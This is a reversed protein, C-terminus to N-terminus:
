YQPIVQEQLNDQGQCRTQGRCKGKNGHYPPSRNFRRLYWSWCDLKGLDIWNWLKKLKAWELMNFYSYCVSMCISRWFSSKSSFNRSFNNQQCNYIFSWLTKLRLEKPAVTSQELWGRLWNHEQFFEHKSIIGHWHQRDLYMALM